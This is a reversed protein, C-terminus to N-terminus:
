EKESRRGEKRGKLVWEKLNMEEGKRVREWEKKGGERRKIGMGIFESRGREKSKGM